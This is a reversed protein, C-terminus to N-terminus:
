VPPPDFQGAGIYIGSNVGLANYGRKWVEQSRRFVLNSNKPSFIKEGGLGYAEGRPTWFNFEQEFKRREVYSIEKELGFKCKNFSM